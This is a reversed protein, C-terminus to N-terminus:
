AGGGREGLLDNKESVESGIKSSTSCCFFVVEVGFSDEQEIFLLIYDVM